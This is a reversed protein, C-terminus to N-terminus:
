EANCVCDSRTRNWSSTFFFEEKKKKQQLSISKHYDTELNSIPKKKKREKEEKISQRSNRAIRLEQIKDM